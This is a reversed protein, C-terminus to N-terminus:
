SSLGLGLHFLIIFAMFTDIEQIAIENEDDFRKGEVKEKNKEIVM